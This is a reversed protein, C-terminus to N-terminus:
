GEVKPPSKGAPVLPPVINNALSVAVGTNRIPKPPIAPIPKPTSTSHVKAKSLELAKNYETQTTSDGFVTKFSEQKAVASKVLAAIEATILPFPVVIKEVNMSPIANFFAIMAEEPVSGRAKGCYSFDGPKFAQNKKAADIITNMETTSIKLPGAPLVFDIVSRDQSVLPAANADTTGLLKALTKVMLQQRTTELRQDTQAKAKIAEAQVALKNDREALHQAENQRHKAAEARALVEMRSLEAGVQKINADAASALRGFQAAERLYKQKQEELEQVEQELRASEDVRRGFEAKTLSSPFAM